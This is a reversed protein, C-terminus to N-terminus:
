LQPVAPNRRGAGGRGRKGVGAPPTPPAKREPAVQDLPIGDLAPAIQAVDVGFRKLITPTIDSRIGNRTVKADNTGLFVYPAYKHTQAGEDFGHDATVYVLTKDYLGLDRLKAIIKGTWEDDSKIADTYQPSNEGFRHGSGDPQAFHIFFFFRKDRCLGIEAMAVTAVRENAELGNLFLDMHRAANYYPKGPWEAFKQGGETVIRGGALAAAGPKKPKKTQRALWQDYPMKAPGEEDVHAKKGVIAMTVINDAGLAARLREFITYGEPIPQYRTNNYVGTVEPKYGTLIQTWGAKTDTAGSTVDIDVLAGDKCLATLNPVENRGIMERLHDRQCGDWGILLVNRPGEEPAAATTAALVVAIVVVLVVALGILRRAM